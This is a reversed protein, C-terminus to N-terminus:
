CFSIQGFYAPLDAHLRRAYTSPVFIRSVDDLTFNLNNGLRWEREMYYNAEDEFSRTAEFCKIFSFVQDILFNRLSGVIHSARENNKLANGLASVQEDDLNFLDRLRTKAEDASLPGKMFRQAEDNSIADLAGFIDLIQRVSVSFLLAKNFFGRKVAAEIEATMFKEPPRLKTVSTPSDNTVYFVPCAGKAILFDKKFALGFRSYKNMHIALDTDPIDCFCVVEYKLAQDTSIPQSLDLTVKRPRNPDHPPYTLWGTKLIKNILTNYQEEQDKGRGVFHTLEDSVYRQTHVMQEGTTSAM